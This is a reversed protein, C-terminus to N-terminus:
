LFSMQEQQPPSKEHGDTRSRKKTKNKERKRLFAGGCGATGAIAKRLADRGGMGGDELIRTIEDMIPIGDPTTMNLMRPVNEMVMAKPQIEVVLRAFEFVLKNRPDNPGANKNASSFGQCPPSGSVLDVEGRELGLADLIDQGNLKYIDGFFFHECGPMGGLVAQKNSGSVPMSQIKGKKVPRSIVKEFRDEDEPEIWHFQVPYEGLNVLYTVTGWVENDVAAAVHYGAMALGLSMGGCGCFLDVAIPLDRNRAISAPLILGSDAEAWGDYPDIIRRGHGYYPKLAEAEATIPDLEPM